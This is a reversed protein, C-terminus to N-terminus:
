HLVVGGTVAVTAGTVFGAAPSALFAIVAAIEEPTGFRGLPTARELEARTAPALGDRMMATEVMGPAVGNVAIGRPGLAKALGRVLTTVAGKSVAYPLRDPLGGSLWAGSSTLVIRGGGAAAMADAAARALLFSGRVNVEQHLDWHAVDVQELPCPVMVGALHALADPAGLEARTRAVIETAAAPDRLDCAFAAHGTGPLEALVEEVREDRDVLMVRAGEAALLRATARGIGGAAGTCIAVQGDLRLDM